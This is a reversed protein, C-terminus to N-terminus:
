KTQPVKGDVTHVRDPHEVGVAGRAALQLVRGMHPSGAYRQVVVSRVM